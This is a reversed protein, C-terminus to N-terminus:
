ALFGVGTGIVCALALVGWLWVIQNLNGIGYRANWDKRKEQEYLSVGSVSQGMGKATLAYPVDASPISSQWADYTLWAFVLAACLLLWSTM